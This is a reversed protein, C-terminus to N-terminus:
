LGFLLAVAETMAAPALTKAKVSAVNVLRVFSRMLTHHHSMRPLVTHVDAVVLIQEYVVRTDVRYIRVIRNRFRYQDAFASNGRNPRLIVDLLNGRSVAAPQISLAGRNHGTQQIGMRMQQVVPRQFLRQDLDPVASVVFLNNRLYGIPCPTLRFASPQLCSGDSLRM